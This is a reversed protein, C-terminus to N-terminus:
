MRLASGNEVIPYPPPFWSQWLLPYISLTPNPLITNNLPLPLFPKAAAFIQASIYMQMSWVCVCVCVSVCALFGVNQVFLIQLQSLPLSLSSPLFNKLSSLSKIFLNNCERVNERERDRERDREKNRM